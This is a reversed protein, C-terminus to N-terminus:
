APNRVLDALSIVEVTSVDNKTATFKVATATDIIRGILIGDSDLTVEGHAGGIIKAKITAGDVATAILVIYNGKQEATDGSFGTYGTVYKSVGTVTNNVVVLNEQLDSASKGLLDADGNYAKVILNNADTAEGNYLGQAALTSIQTNTLKYPLKSNLYAGRTVIAKVAEGDTIDADNVLLGYGLTADNVLTGARVVKRGNEVVYTAFNAPITVTKQELGVESDLWAIHNYRIEAM